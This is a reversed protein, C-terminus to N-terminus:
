LTPLVNGSTSGTLSDCMVGHVAAQLESSSATDITTTTAPTSKEVSGQPAAMIIAPAVDPAKHPM